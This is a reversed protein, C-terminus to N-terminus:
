RKGLLEAPAGNPEWIGWPVPFRRTKQVAWIVRDLLYNPHSDSISAIEMVRPVVAHLSEIPKLKTMANSIATALSTMRHDQPYYLGSCTGATDRGVWTRKDDTQVVLTINSDGCSHPFGMIYTVGFITHILLGAADSAAHEINAFVAVRAPKPRGSRKTGENWASELAYLLESRDFRASPLPRSSDSAVEIYSAQHDIRVTPRQPLASTNPPAEIWRAYEIKACGNLMSLGLLMLGMKSLGTKRLDM